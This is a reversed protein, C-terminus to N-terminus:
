QESVGVVVGTYGLKDLGEAWYEALLPHDLLYEATPTERRDLATEILEPWDDPEADGRGLWLLAVLQAQHDTDLGEFEEVIEERSLDEASEQLVAPGEDDSANGGHEPMVTGEQAMVARVKFILRGVYDPDITLEDM